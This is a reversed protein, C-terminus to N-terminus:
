TLSTKILSINELCSWKEDVQSVFIQKFPAIEKRFSSYTHKVFLLYSYMGIRFFLGCSTWTLRLLYFIRWIEEESECWLKELAYHSAFKKRVQDLSLNDNHWFFSNETVHHYCTLIDRVVAVTSTKAAVNIRQSACMSIPAQYRILLYFNALIIPLNCFFFSVSQDSLDKRRAAICEKSVRVLCVNSVFLCFRPLLPWLFNTDCISYLCCATWVRRSYAITLFKENKKKKELYSFM